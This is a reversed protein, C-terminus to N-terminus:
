LYHEMFYVADKRTNFKGVSDLEGRINTYYCVWWTKGDLATRKGVHYNIKKM